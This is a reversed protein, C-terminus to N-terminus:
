VIEGVEVWAELDTTVPLFGADTTLRTGILDGAVYNDLGFAQTAVGGSANSISTHVITFGTGVGNITVEVTLTGATIPETLRTALGMISGSRIAKITDFNTSVQALLAVNNQNAAVDNQAWQEPFAM